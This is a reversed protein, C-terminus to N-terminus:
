TLLGYAQLASIVGALDSATQKVVATAGFFGLKYTASELKAEVMKQIGLSLYVNGSGACNLNTSTGDTAWQIVIRSGSDTIYAGGIRTHSNVQLYNANWILNSADILKTGDYYILGNTTSFATNNTGGKSIGITTANWTGTSVTGLTTINTTGAWTSLATNEVNNISLISRVNTTSVAEVNGIGLSNRALFEGASINQIKAFTVANAAIYTSTIATGNWTGSAITGLTTIASSGTWSSLNSIESTSHTHSSPTFTSPKSTVESWDVFGWSLSGATAGAKLAKTNNTTGTAPVHLNGDGSPHVYNNAGSEIGDLKTKDAGTMFGAAGAAIVNAHATGGAGVHSLPAADTIGYGALTTPTSTIQSWPHTHSSPTFTSPKSAVETWDVAGWVPDTGNSKLVTTNAGIALRTNGVLGFVVLDGRTTTPSLNDFANNQSTGGTGGNSISITSGNWTGSTITGVTVLNSSGSWTSLATNEVNSLGVDSKTVAAISLTGSGNSKWFGAADVSPLTWTINGAVVAASIFAVFHSNDADYFACPKNNLLDIGGSIALASM